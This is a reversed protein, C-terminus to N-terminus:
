EQENQRREKIWEVLRKGYKSQAVKPTMSKSITDMLKLHADPIETLAIYPAVEYKSNVVAYNATILYKRILWQEKKTELNALDQTKNLKKAIIEKEVIDLNEDSIKSRIKLFEDFIKQNKSGEFKANAYFEKLTTKFKMEGPEAFFQLSNDISNTQGRDLYVYLMEPEDIQFKTDFESEGDFIISDITVLNTDKLKQIFIKGKTLGEVKGTLHVNGQKETEKNCSITILTLLSYLVIKKM